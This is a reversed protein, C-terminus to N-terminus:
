RVPTRKTGTRREHMYCAPCVRVRDIPSKRLRDSGINTVEATCALRQCPATKPEPLPPATSTWRTTIRLAAALNNAARTIAVSRAATDAAIAQDTPDSILMPSTAGTTGGTTGGTPLSGRRYEARKARFTADLALLDTILDQARHLEDATRTM